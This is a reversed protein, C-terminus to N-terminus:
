KEMVCFLDLSDDPDKSLLYDSHHIESV